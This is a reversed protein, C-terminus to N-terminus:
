VGCSAIYKNYNIFWCQCMMIVWLECNANPDVLPNHKRHNKVFTHHCRVEIIAVNLFFNVVRFVDGLEVLEEVRFRM